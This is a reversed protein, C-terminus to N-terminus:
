RPPKFPHWIKKNTHEEIAQQKLCNLYLVELSNAIIGSFLNACRQVQNSMQVMSNSLARDPALEANQRLLQVLKEAVCYVPACPSKLIKAPDHSLIESIKYMMNVVKEAQLVLRLCFTAFPSQTTSIPSPQNVIPAIM